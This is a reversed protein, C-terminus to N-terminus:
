EYAFLEGNVWSHHITTSDFKANNLVWLKAYLSSHVVSLSTTFPLPYEKRHGKESARDRLHNLRLIEAEM